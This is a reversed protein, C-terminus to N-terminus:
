SKIEDQVSEQSYGYLGNEKIYEEVEETVLFRVSKGEAISERVFTSSMLVQPCEKAVTVSGSDEEPLEYGPRPYVVVGFERLIEDHNVWKDFLQWNDSGIIVKFEHGPYDRRLQCLTRYTYTPLPFQFEYDSAIVRECRYAVLKAMRYRHIDSAGSEKESKLPNRPSVMLWVEDLLGSHSLQEALIAHGIHIPDFSGGFIGIRM